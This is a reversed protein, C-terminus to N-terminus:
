DSPLQISRGFKLHDGIQGNSTVIWLLKCPPKITPAAAEGDTLYICGDFREFRQDRLWQFVPNFVTGGRGSVTRPLKGTYRYTRQVVADCEIIRIEAGQRWM